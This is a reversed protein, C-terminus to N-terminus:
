HIQYTDPMRIVTLPVRIGSPMTRTPNYRLAIRGFGGTPIADPDVAADTDGFYGLTTNRPGGSANKGLTIISGDVNWAGGRMNVNGAVVVGTLSSTPLPGTPPADFSGCDVNTNPALITATPDSTNNFVTTGNFEWNNALHTYASPVASAMPGNIKCADFRLNNGDSFGYSNTATLATTSSFTGSKMKKAWAMGKSPDDTSPDTTNHNGTTTVHTELDVYTVGEFTCNQFLANTGKAIKCNVFKVNKFVPRKYTSQPTATGKPSGETVTTTETANAYAVIKDTVTTGQVIRGSITGGTGAMSKYSSTDFSQPTLSQADAGNYNFQIPPETPDPSIIPGQLQERYGLGYEDGGSSSTDKAWTDWANASVGVKVNGNIKAYGDNFDLQEDGDYGWSNDILGLWQNLLSHQDPTPNYTLGSRAQADPLYPTNLTDLLVFLQADMPEGNSATFQSQTIRATKGPDLHSLFVDYDDLYGDGSADYFGQAEAQAKLVTNNWVSMRNSYSPDHNTLFDRFQRLKDDLASQGTLRTFDSLSWVPPGKTFNTLKSVIDGTVVTNKGLQIAINSYVAYRLTKQLSVDMTVERPVKGSTGVSTLHLLIKSASTASAQQPNGSDWKVTLVFYPGKSITPDVAIPPTVMPTLGGPVAVASQSNVFSGCQNIANALQVAIGNNSSGLGEINTGAWLASLQGPDLDGISGELIIPMPAMRIQLLLYSMGSEAAVLARASDAEAEGLVMNGMSYSYIVSAMAGILIVFVLATLLVAGRRPM